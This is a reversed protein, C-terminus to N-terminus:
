SLESLGAFPAEHGDIGRMKVERKVV